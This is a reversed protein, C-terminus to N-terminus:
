IAYQRLELLEVCLKLYAVCSSIEEKTIREKLVENMYSSVSDINCLKYSQKIQNTANSWLCLDFQTPERTVVHFGIELSFSSDNPDTINFTNLCKKQLFPLTDLKEIANVIKRNKDNFHEKCKWGIRSIDHDTLSSLLALISRTQLNNESM